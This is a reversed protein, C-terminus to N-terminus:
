GIVVAMNATGPAVSTRPKENNDDDTEGLQVYPGFKGNMVFVTLGTEPDEGIPKGGKPMALLELAVAVTVVPPWAWYLLSELSLEPPVPGHAPILLLHTM